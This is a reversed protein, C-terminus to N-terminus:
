RPRGGRRALRRHDPVCAGPEQRLRRAMAAPGCRGRRDARRCGRLRRLAGRDQRSPDARADRLQNAPRNGASGGGPRRDSWRTWGCRVPSELTGVGTVARISADLVSYSFNLLGFAALIAIPEGFALHNSPQGRRLPANDMAPLDDLILSSAHVLEIAAAAGVAHAPTGGCLEACLLVLVPRVRKSPAHVTYAMSQQVRNGDAPVLRKLEADVRLQYDIFFAPVASM